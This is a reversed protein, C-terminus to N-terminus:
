NTAGQLVPLEGTNPIAKQLVEFLEKTQIPKSIYDDMGAEICQQRDGPMANATMAIIPIRRGTTKEGERIAATTEFGDMDPMQVDMLVVDCSQQTLIELAQRGTQAVVIRHGRKELIRVALRQNVSNDEALLITLSGAVRPPADSTNRPRKEAEGPSSLAASIAKLLSSRRIPKSLYAKIGHNVFPEADRRFSASTLIIIAPDGFRNDAEITKVVTFGDMAPMQVDLLVLPCRRGGANAEKLIQLAEPGSAASTSRMGWGALTEELIRRNIRNDDVVLVPVNRLLDLDLCVPRANL